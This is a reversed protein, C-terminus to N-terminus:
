GGEVERIVGSTRLRKDPSVIETIRVGYRDGMVVAEGRAVLQDNVLIDLPEDAAKALELVSGPGLSLVEAIRLRRHGLEVRVEVSVDRLRDMAARERSAREYSETNFLESGAGPLNTELGSKTQFLSEDDEPDDHWYSRKPPKKGSAGIDKGSPPIGGVEGM